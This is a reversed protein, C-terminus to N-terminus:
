RQIAIKLTIEQGAGQAFVFYFGSAASRGSQNTGDWVALGASDATLDKVLLGSLTYIRLRANAPLLSFTMAAPGQSIRWPNPFAKATKVTTSPASQMIQFLSLHNTQATVIRGSIDVSSPLPVWVNENADCRAIILKREDTGPLLAAGGYGISVIVERNPEIGSALGINVGIYTPILTAAPAAACSFTSDLSVTIVTDQSFAEPPVQLEFPGISPNFLLSGGAPGITSSASILFLSSTFESLGMRSFWFGSNVAVAGASLASAGTQPGSSMLQISGSSMVTSGFEGQFTPGFTMQARAGGVGMFLLVAAFGAVGSM